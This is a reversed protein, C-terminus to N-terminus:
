LPRHFPCGEHLLALCSARTNPPVTHPNVPVPSCADLLLHTGARDGPAPLQRVPLPRQLSRAAPWTDWARSGESTSLAKHPVMTPGSVPSGAWPEDTLKQPGLTSQSFHPSTTVGELNLPDHPPPCVVPILPKKPVSAPSYTPKRPCDAGVGMEITRGSTRLLSQLSVM